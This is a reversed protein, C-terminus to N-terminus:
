PYPFHMDILSINVVLLPLHRIFYIDHTHIDLTLIMKCKIGFCFYNMLSRRLYQLPEPNDNHSFTM